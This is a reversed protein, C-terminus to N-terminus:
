AMLQGNQSLTVGFESNSADEPHQAQVHARLNAVKSFSKKCVQCRTAGTHSKKHDNLSRHHVYRKGCIDCVYPAPVSTGAEAKISGENSSGSSIFGNGGNSYSAVKNNSSFGNTKIVETGGNSSILSLVNQQLLQQTLSFSPTSMEGAASNAASVAAAAAAAAAAHSSQSLDEPVANVTMTAAVGVGKNGPSVGVARANSNSIGNVVALATNRYNIPQQQTHQNNSTKVLGPVGRGAKLHHAQILISNNGNLLRRKYQQQQQYPHLEDDEDSGPMSESGDDLYHREGTDEHSSNSRSDHSSSSNNHGNQFIHHQTQLPAYKIVRDQNDQQQQQHNNYGNNGKGESSSASRSSLRNRLKSGNTSVLTGNTHAYANTSNGYM